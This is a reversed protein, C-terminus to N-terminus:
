GKIINDKIWQLSNKFEKGKFYVLLYLINPIVLCVIAKIVFGKIGDISILSCCYFTVAAVVFSIIIYKFHLCFFEFLKGNKFYHKFVIHSGGIFNVIFLSIITALIIGYVGMTIVLIWNLAINLIVEVISRFRNEWWLGAAEVYVSRIDGMKLIYFYICILIVVKFDFMNNKGVWLNMFPQYLCLLCITCWGALWMYM